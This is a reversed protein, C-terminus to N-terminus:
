AKDSDDLVKKEQTPEDEKIEPKPAPVTPAKDTEKAAAAAEKRVQETQEVEGATRKEVLQQGQEDSLKTEDTM